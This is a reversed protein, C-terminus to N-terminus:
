DACSSYRAVATLAISDASTAGVNVSSASGTASALGTEVGSSTVLSAKRQAKLRAQVGAQARSRAPAASEATAGGYVPKEVDSSTSARRKRSNM